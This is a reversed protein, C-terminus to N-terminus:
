IARWFLLYSCCFGGVTANFGVKESWGELLFSDAATEEGFPMVFLVGSFAVLLPARPTVFQPHGGCPVRIM